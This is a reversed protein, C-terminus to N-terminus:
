YWGPAALRETLSRGSRTPQPEFDIWQLETSGGHGHIARVHDVGGPWVTTSAYAGPWHVAATGDPFQVGHAVIGTGSVGSPDEHRMLRFRRVPEQQTTGAAEPQAPPTPPPDLGTARRRRQATSAGDMGAM